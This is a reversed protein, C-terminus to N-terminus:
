PLWNSKRGTGRTHISHRNKNPHPCDRLAGHFRNLCGMAQLLNNARMRHESGLTPSSIAYKQLQNLWKSNFRPSPTLFEKELEDLLDEPSKRTQKRPRVTDFTGNNEAELRAEIAAPDANKANLSLRDMASDLTEM